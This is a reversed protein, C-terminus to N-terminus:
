LHLVAFNHSMFKQRTERRSERVQGSQMWCINQGAAAPCLVVGFVCLCVCVCKSQVGTVNKVCDPTGLTTLFGRPPWFGAHRLNIIYSLQKSQKKRKRQLSTKKNKQEKKAEDQAVQAHWIDVLGSMVALSRPLLTIPQCVVQSCMVTGKFILLTVLFVFLQSLSFSM